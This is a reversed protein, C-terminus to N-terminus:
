DWCECRQVSFELVEDDQEVEHDIECKRHDIEDVGRTLKWRQNREERTPERNESRPRDPVPSLLVSKLADEFDGLTVPDREVKKIKDRNM